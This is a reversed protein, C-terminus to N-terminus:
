VSAAKAAVADAYAGKVGKRDARLPPQQYLAGTALCVLLAATGAANAHQDWMAANVLITLVKCVNGIVSFSTASIVARLAFSFYSMGLGAVCSLAVMAWAFGGHGGAAVRAAEGTALCVLAMPPVALANQYFTRGWTSMAVTDVVKKVWVMEAVAFTYWIALWAYGAPTFHVDAAAYAVVGAFVGGLAAWSRASPLERGLYFYEIVAIVLPTSARFCIITDVPVYRLTTVNAFLTGIFGVVILGFKAAKGRELPECEVVRAAALGRVFLACTALQALLIFSPAPLHTVAVKNLILLMSSCISYAVVLFTVRASVRYRGPSPPPPSSAPPPDPNPPSFVAFSPRRSTKM